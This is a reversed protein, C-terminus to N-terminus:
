ENCRSQYILDAKGYNTGGRDGKFKQLITIGFGIQKDLLIDLYPDAVSHSGWFRAFTQFRRL